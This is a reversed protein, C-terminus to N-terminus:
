GAPPLGPQRLAPNRGRALAEILEMQAPLCKALDYRDLVTQRAARRLPAMREPNDLAEIVRDAVQMPDFFDVLLGNKGDAIVETVPATRSGIVLCGCSMAELMSWSLVFPITLYVHARSAQFIEIFRGYPVRGMFHVRRPDIDVEELMVERHTRGDPPPAGYSTKDNGMILIHCRPRRRCLEAVARMFTPFGRVPELSRAVYTVIETSRGDLWTGDALAVGERRRPSCLATDIGDHILSIKHRYDGPFQDYQWRTPVIGWDCYALSFLTILNRNRVEAASALTAQQKPDFHASAGFAHFFFECYHLQPTGPFIDHLYLAEGWGPHVCIVDPRFGHKTKLEEAASAASMGRRVAEAMRKLPAYASAPEEPADYYGRLVGPIAEEKRSCIYAIRYGPRIALAGALHKYQGPFNQHIFLVNM